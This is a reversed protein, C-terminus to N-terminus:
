GLLRRYTRALGAVGQENEEPSCAPFTLRFFIGQHRDTCPRKWGKAFVRAPALLVGEKRAERIFEDEDALGKLWVGLFFGGTLEPIELDPLHRSVARNMAEMRTGYLEVLYSLHRDYFGSEMLRHIAAQTPYNPNLRTDALVAGVERLWKPPLVGFGCKAGPSLTKTFSGLLVTSDRFPELPFLRNFAGDYRLEFYALDLAHLTGAASCIESARRMNEVTTTRGTPSQHFAVQYFVRVEGAALVKELADLDVGEEGLPVGLGEHGQREIDSLVRDYTMAETAIRSSRPLSKLLLSFTEMGGNSCIVREQPDDDIGLRELIMRKLPVYGNFDTLGQSQYQILRGGFEGLVEPFVSQFAEAVPVLAEDAPVGRLFNIPKQTM